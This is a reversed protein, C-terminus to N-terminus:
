LFLFLVVCPFHRAGLLFQFLNPPGKEGEEKCGEGANLELSFVSAESSEPYITEIRLMRWLGLPFDSFTDEIWM